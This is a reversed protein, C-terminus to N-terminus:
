INKIIGRNNYLVLEVEEKILKAIDEDYKQDLYENFKETAEPYKKGKEIVWDSLNTEKDNIINDLETEKNEIEWHDNRYIQLYKNNKNRNSIYLNHNEPNDKNFHIQKILRPIIQHSEADKILKNIIKDTIKELSTSEYNNVMINFTNNNITTPKDKLKQELDKNKEELEKIKKDKIKDKKRCNDKQHENLNTKTSFNKNCFKCIIEVPIEVIERIGSGCKKKRKTHRTVNEKKFSTYECVSCAFEM